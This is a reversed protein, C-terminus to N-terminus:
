PWTTRRNSEGDVDFVLPVAPLHNPNYISVFMDTWKLGLLGNKLLDAFLPFDITVGQRTISTANRPLACELGLCSNIIEGALEGVAYRGIVPVTEGITLTVSWTDPQDDSLNMDQCVPWSAGGLRVLKRFDDVRYGSVPLTAGDLKVSIIESVPSPLWAESIVSCSCSGGCGGCTLNYWNGAILAPRPWYSGWEWWAGFGGAGGAWWGGDSCDKRCPRVTFQCADFRQGSLVYLVETAAELASGSIAAAEATLEMCWVPDWPSCPGQTRTPQTM